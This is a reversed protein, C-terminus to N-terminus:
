KLLQDRDLARGSLIVAHIKKANRIDVTPNADLVLLDARYGAQIKGVKSWGFLKGFNSTAAALAQRPSLGIKTLLLLETHLSIGPMTGFATTGSGTLYKAGAKCYEREIRFLSETLDPPFSDAAAGPKKDPVGTLPNAPLHIDKPDLIAAVPERSSALVFAAPMM